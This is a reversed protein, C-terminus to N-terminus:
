WLRLIEAGHTKIVEQPEVVNGTVQVDRPGPADLVWGHTLVTRYPAARHTIMAVLLSSHFWGRYQDGGELYIDSPWPVDPRRGLVAYHSSGSDFWVDLIDTEKRLEAGDCKPCRTGASALEGASHTYWADAGERRFLEMALRALTADLLPQNCKACFFVSHACGLRTTTLRV